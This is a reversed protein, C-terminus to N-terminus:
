SIHELAIIQNRIVMHNIKTEIRVQLAETLRALGFDVTILVM